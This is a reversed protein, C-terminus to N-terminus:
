KWKLSSKEIDDKHKLAEDLSMAAVEDATYFHFGYQKTEGTLGKKDVKRDGMTDLIKENEALELKEKIGPDKLGEEYLEEAPNDSQFIDLQRHERGSIRLLAAQKVTEYDLGIKKRTSYKTRAARESKNYNVQYRENDGKKKVIDQAKKISDMVKTEIDRGDRKTLVDGDEGEIVSKKKEKDEAERKLKENEKTLSEVQSQSQSFKVDSEHRKSREDRLDGIVGDHEVQSYTKEGKDQTEQGKDKESM